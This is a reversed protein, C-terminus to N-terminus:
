KNVLAKASRSIKDATKLGVGKINCITHKDMKSLDELSQTGSEILAVAIEDTMGTVKMLETKIVDIDSDTLFQEGESSGSSEEDIQEEVKLTEKAPLLVKVAAGLRILRAGDADPVDMESGPEHQGVGDIITRLISIKM